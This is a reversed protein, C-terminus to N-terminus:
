FYCKIKNIKFAIFLGPFMHIISRQLVIYLATYLHTHQLMNYVQLVATFRM